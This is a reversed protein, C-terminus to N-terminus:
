GLKSKAGESWAWSVEDLTSFARNAKLDAVTRAIGESFSVRPSWGLVQRAREIALVSIPVDFSRTSTRTVQICRGLVTELRSVIENLSTGIGTGVNFVFDVDSQPACALMVLCSAVDSIHIFDRITEGDGWIVIPQGTLARHLFTTVAGLGRSLNQGAGYPNAIRAIRCDLDYMTRYLKLYIEATMKGAGYATIPALLADESVPASKLKGYVTGGSSAFVVRGGGRRKLSELLGLTATVNILLDGTPNANASAPISSWAYHHVVDVGTVLDDWDASALELEKRLICSAVEAPFGFAPPTRSAITVRHGARALLLAVHRGIFSNGGLILHHQLM